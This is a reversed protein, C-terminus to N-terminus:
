PLQQKIHHSKGSRECLCVQILGWWFISPMLWGELGTKMHDLFKTVMDVATYQCHKQFFSFYMRSGIQLWQKLHETKKPSNIQLVMKLYCHTEQPKGWRQCLNSETYEFSQLLENLLMSIFFYVRALNSTIYSQLICYEGGGSLIYKKVSSIIKPYLQIKIKM